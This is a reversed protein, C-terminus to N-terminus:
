GLLPLRLAAACCGQGRCALLAGLLLRPLLLLLVLWWCRCHRCCRPARGGGVDLRLPPRPGLWAM